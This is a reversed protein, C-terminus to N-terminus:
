KGDRCCDYTVLTLYGISVPFFNPSLIRRIFKTKLESGDIGYDVDLLYVVNKTKFKSYKNSNKTNSNWNWCYKLKSFLDTM